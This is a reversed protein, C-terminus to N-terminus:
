ELPLKAARPNKQPDNSLDNSKGASDQMPMPYQVTYFDNQKVMQM